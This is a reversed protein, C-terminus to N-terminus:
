VVAERRWRFYRKMGTQLIQELLLAFAFFFLIWALMGAISFLQFERRIMFGIGSSSGFVETLTAIKWAVSFGYRLAAFSYPALFPIVIERLRRRESVGFARGMDILDKPMAKVGEAINVTVFPMSTVIIAWIPGLPSFGFIMAAVLAFVLGPTSMMSLVWDRSFADFWPKAMLIGVCVGLVYTISYGIAIKRLTSAFHPWFVGTVIIEQMEQLIILPGPLSFSREGLALSASQWVALVVVYGLIRPTWIQFARSDRWTETRGDATTTTM